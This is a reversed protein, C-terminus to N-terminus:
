TTATYKQRWRATQTLTRYSPKTNQSINATPAKKAFRLSTSFRASTTRQRKTSHVDFYPLSPVNDSPQISMLTRYHHNYEPWYKGYAYRKAFRLSTSFRASTTPQRKTSHVDFHPLPPVNDSPQISMLTRHGLTPEPWFIQRLRLIVRIYLM